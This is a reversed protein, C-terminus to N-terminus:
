LVYMLSKLSLKFNFSSIKRANWLRTISNFTITFFKTSDQLPLNSEVWVVEFTGAMPSAFERAEVAVYLDRGKSHSFTNRVDMKKTALLLSSEWVVPNVSGPFKRLCHCSLQRGNNIYNRFLSM